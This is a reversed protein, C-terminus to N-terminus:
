RVRLLVHRISGNRARPAPAVRAECSLGLETALLSVTSLALGARLRAERQDTRTALAFWRQDPPPPTEDVPLRPHPVRIDAATGASRAPGDPHDLDPHHHIPTLMTGAVPPYARLAEIRDARHGAAAHEPSAARASGDHCRRAIAAALRISHDTPEAEHLYVRAIIALRAAPFPVVTAAWGFAAFAVMLHHLAAGCSVLVGRDESTDTRRSAAHLEITTGTVRCHWPRDHLMSPARAALMVASEVTSHNPIEGALPQATYRVTANLTDLVDPPPVTHSVTM